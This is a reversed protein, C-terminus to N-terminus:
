RKGFLENALGLKNTSNSIKDILTQYPVGQKAAELYINRLASASSSADIGGDSLVGLSAAMESFSIGSADAAKSVIPLATQLKEFNLASKQTALTMQDMIKTTDTSELDRFTKIMAGTLEATESLEANMAISGSITAETMNVIDPTQFGLRAFAEQLGVVETATKATVGGLRAADDFLKKQNESSTNMVASLDANAQEFDRVTRVASGVGSILAATGAFALMQKGVASLSPTLRRFGRNLRAVGMEAKQAFTTMNRSMKKVPTSFKDVATFISPVKLAM